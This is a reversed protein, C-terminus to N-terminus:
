YQIKFDSLNKVKGAETEIRKVRGFEPGDKCWNIFELIRKEPGEVEIYVSGDPDNRVFGALGLKDAEAKTNFRYGVGQVKGFVRINVHKAM